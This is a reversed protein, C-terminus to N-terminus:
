KFLLTPIWGFIAPSVFLKSVKLIDFNIAFTSHPFLRSRVTETKCPEPSDQNKDVPVVRVTAYPDALGILKADRLAMDAEPLFQAEVVTIRLCWARFHKRKDLAEQLHKHVNNHKEVEAKIQKASKDKAHHATQKLQIEELGLGVLAVKDHLGFPLFVKQIINPKFRKICVCCCMLATASILPLGFNLFVELMDTSAADAPAEGTCNSRLAEDRSPACVFGPEVQCHEDCGDFLELNGDDCGEVDTESTGYAVNVTLGDGCVVNATLDRKNVLYVAAAPSSLGKALNFLRGRLISSETVKVVKFEAGPDALDVCLNQSNGCPTDPACEIAYVPLADAKDGLGTQQVDEITWCLLSCSTAQDRGVRIGGFEIGTEDEFSLVKMGAEVGRLGAQFEKALEEVGAQAVSFIPAPCIECGLPVEKCPIGDRCM